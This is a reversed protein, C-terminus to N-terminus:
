SADLVESVTYRANHFRLPFRRRDSTLLTMETSLEKLQLKHRGLYGADDFDVDDVYVMKCKKYCQCTQPGINRHTQLPNKHFEVYKSFETHNVM